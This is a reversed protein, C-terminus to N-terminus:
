ADDSNKGKNHIIQTSKLVLDMRMTFKEKLADILAKSIQPDEVGM